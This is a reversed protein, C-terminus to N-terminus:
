RPKQPVIQNDHLAQWEDRILKRSYLDLAFQGKKPGTQIKAARLNKWEQQGYVGDGRLYHSREWLRFAKDLAGGAPWEDTFNEKWEMYGLRAMSRKLAIITPGKHPLKTAGSAYLGTYPVQKAAIM